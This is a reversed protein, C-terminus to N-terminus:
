LAMYYLKLYFNCVVVTPDVTVTFSDQVDVRVQATADGFVNYAKCLWAGAVDRSARTVCLAAGGAWLWVAASPEVPQLRGNRERYWRYKLNCLCLLILRVLLVKKLKVCTAPYISLKTNLFEAGYTESFEPPM